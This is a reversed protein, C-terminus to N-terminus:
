YLYINEWKGKVKKYKSLASSLLLWILIYSVLIPMVKDTLAGRNYEPVMFFALAIVLASTIYCSKKYQIKTAESFLYTVGFHMCAATQFIKNGWIFIFLPEFNSIVPIETTAVLYLFPYQLQSTLKWGMYSITVITIFTYLTTTFISAMVGAINTGKKDTVLPLIVISLEIGSYAFFTSPIAKFLGSFNEVIPLLNTVDGKNIFYIPILFIFITLYFVLESLRAIIKLGDVSNYYILVATIVILVYPSLFKVTSFTLENALGSIVAAETFLFNIAFLISFIRTLTKGYIGESAQTFEVFNVNKYFYYSLIACVIPYLGAIIVAIWGSQQAKNAVGGALSIVGIGIMASQLVFFYQNRTITNNKNM